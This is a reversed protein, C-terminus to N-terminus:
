LDDDKCTCIYFKRAIGEFVGVLNEPSLVKVYPIWQKILGIVENESSVTYSITINGEEDENVIKQSPMFKKLKFYKAKEKQVAIVVEKLHEKYNPKYTAWPSQISCIFDMLDYNIHFDKGTFEINEIMAIRSLIYREKRYESALYFNESMFVIKYPKLTFYNIKKYNNYKIKIQKKFKVAFELQKFKERHVFVEEYPKQKFLYPSNIEEKILGRKVEDDLNKSLDLKSKESLKLINKLMYLETSNLTKQLMTKSVAKYEGKEPSILIDGYISKILELDRQISRISTDYKCALHKVHLSKGEDLEKLIELIRCTSTKKSM